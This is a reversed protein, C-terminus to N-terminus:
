RKRLSFGCSSTSTPLHCEMLYPMTSMLVKFGRWVIASHPLSSDIRHRGGGCPWGRGDSGLEPRVARAGVGRAEDPARWGEGAGARPSHWGARERRGRRDTRRPPRCAAARRRWPWAPRGAARAGRSGGAAKRRSAERRLRLRGGFCARPGGFLLAVGASALAAGFVEGIVTSLPRGVGHGARRRLLVDAHRLRVRM